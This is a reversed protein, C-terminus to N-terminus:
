QNGGVKNGSNVGRYGIVRDSTRELLKWDQKTLDWQTLTFYKIEMVEDGNDTRVVKLYQNQISNKDITVKGILDSPIRIGMYDEWVLKPGGDESWQYYLHFWPVDDPSYGEWGTPVQMVGYELVGDGNIDGSVIRQDKFTQDQSLVQELKGQKMMVLLTYGSNNGIAADLMVGEEGDATVKGSIVNFYDDINSDLDLKDLQAFTKGDYQLTTITSSENKKFTVISLDLQKDANLDDIVYENYPLELIKELKKGVLSYVALGKQVQKEGSSYGAIIETKGDHTLDAFQLSELVQGEGEIETLPVWTSGRSEFIAGHIRVTEDPTDYFVVAENTGDHDLDQVRILSSTGDDSPRILTGGNPLQALYQNVVSRLSEKDSSLMPTKMSAKPDFDLDCGGLVAALWCLLLLGLLKRAKLPIM